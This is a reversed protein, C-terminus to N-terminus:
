RLQLGGKYHALVRPGVSFYEITVARTPRFILALQQDRRSRTLPPLEGAARIPQGPTYRVHVENSDRYVFGVAQYQRGRSDILLPPQDDDARGLTTAPSEPSVDVIVLTTEPTGALTNVRLTRDLGPEALQDRTLRAIGDIIAGSEDLALGGHRGRQIIIGFPLAPSVILSPFRLGRDLPQLVVASTLDLDGVTAASAALLERSVIAADRAATTPYRVPARGAVPYRANKVYLFRPELGPPVLFEFAMTVETQGGRSPIAVRPGDLPFRVYQEEQADNLSVVAVPFFTAADTHDPTACVLRVQPSQIVVQGNREKAGDGFRFVVGELRSGPPYPRGDLTTPIRPREGPSMWRDRLLDELPLPQEPAVAYRGVVRGDAPRMTISAEGLRREGYSIRLASPVIELDPYYHALPHATGFTTLSLRQYLRATLRDIPVILGGRREVSGNSAWDVPQYGWLDVPLHLMQGSILLIGGTIIGSVLGCLAGGAMNVADDVIANHRVIADTAMRLIALAVAFPGALGLGWAAGRLFSLFGRRPAHDLIYLAAPEWAAFAIAGAAIVCAMGLLASFFGRTLWVYAIIGVILIAFVHMM